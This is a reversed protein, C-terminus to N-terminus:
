LSSPVHNPNPYHNLPSVATLPFDEGAGEGRVIELHRILLKPVLLYFSPTAWKKVYIRLDQLKPHRFQM